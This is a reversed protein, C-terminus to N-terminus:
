QNMFVTATHILGFVASTGVQLPLRVTVTHSASPSPPPLPPVEGEPSGRPLSALPAGGWSVMESSDSDSEGATESSEFMDQSECAGGRTGDNNDPQDSNMKTRKSPPSSM